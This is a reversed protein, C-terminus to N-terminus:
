IKGTPLNSVTPKSAVECSSTSGFVEGKKGAGVHHNSSQVIRRIEKLFKGIHYGRSRVAWFYMALIGNTKKFCPPKSLHDALLLPWQWNIQSSSAIMVWRKCFIEKASVSQMGVQWCTTQIDSLAKDHPLWGFYYCNAIPPVEKHFPSPDTNFIHLLKPCQREGLTLRIDCLRWWWIKM